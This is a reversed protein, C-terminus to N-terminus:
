TPTLITQRQGSGKGNNCKTFLHFIKGNVTKTDTPNPPAIHKWKNYPKNSNNGSNGKQKSALLRTLLQNQVQLLEEIALSKSETAALAM